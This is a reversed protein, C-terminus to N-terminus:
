HTGLKRIRYIYVDDFLPNDEKVTNKFELLEYVHPNPMEHKSYSQRLVKTCYERVEEEPRKTFIKFSAYRYGLEDSQGNNKDRLNKVKFADKNIMKIKQNRKERM